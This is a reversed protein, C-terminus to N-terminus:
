SNYTKNKDTKYWIQFILDFKREVSKAPEEEEWRQGGNRKWFSSAIPKRCKWFPKASSLEFRRDKQVSIFVIYSTRIIIYHGAM